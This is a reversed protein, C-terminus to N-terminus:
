HGSTALPYWIPSVSELTDPPLGPKASIALSHHRLQVLPFTFGPPGSARSPTTHSSQTQPRLNVVFIFPLSSHPFLLSPEPLRPLGPRLPSNGSNSIISTPCHGISTATFLLHLYPGSAQPAPPVKLGISKLDKFSDMTSTALPASPCAIIDISINNPPVLVVENLHTSILALQTFRLSM